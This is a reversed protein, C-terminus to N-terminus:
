EEEEEKKQFNSTAIREDWKENKREKVSPM